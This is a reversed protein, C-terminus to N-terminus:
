KKNKNALHDMVTKHSTDYIIKTNKVFMEYQEPTLRTKLKATDVYFICFEHFESTNVPKRIKDWQVALAISSLMCGGYVGQAYLSLGEQVKVLTEERTDAFSSPSAALLAAALLLKKM